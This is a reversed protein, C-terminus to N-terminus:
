FTLELDNDWTNDISVSFGNTRNFVEGTLTTMRNKRLEVDPMTVSTIVAGQADKVTISASSTWEENNALTYIAASAGSVGRNSTCDLEVSSQSYTAATLDPLNLSQSRKGLTLIITKANAPIADSIIVKLGSVSRKLEPARNGNSSAVVDVPYSLTFTDHAKTWSLANDTLSPSTGKSAVFKIDHKGYTLNMPVSGFGDDTSSQHVQQVLTGDECYDLVWLDTMGATNNDELRIAARTMDEYNTTFDGKVHFTFAKTPETTETITEENDHIPSYCSSLALMM